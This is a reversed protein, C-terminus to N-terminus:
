SSKTGSPDSYIGTPELVKHEPIKQQSFNLHSLSAALASQTFPEFSIQSCPITDPIPLQVGAFHLPESGVHM